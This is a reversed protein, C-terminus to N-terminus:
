IIFSLLSMRSVAMCVRQLISLVLLFKPFRLQKGQVNESSQREFNDTSYCYASGGRSQRLRGLVEVYLRKDLVAVPECMVSASPHEVSSSQCGM